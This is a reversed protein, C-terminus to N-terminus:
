VSGGTPIGTSGLVGLINQVPRAPRPRPHCGEAAPLDIRILCSPSGCSGEKRAEDKRIEKSPETQWPIAPTPM